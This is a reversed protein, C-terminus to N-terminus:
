NIRSSVYSPLTIVLGLCVLFSNLGIRLSSSDIRILIMDFTTAFDIGASVLINLGSSASTIVSLGFIPDLYYNMRHLPM